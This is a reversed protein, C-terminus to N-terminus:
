SGSQGDLGCVLRSQVRGTAAQKDQNTDGSSRM